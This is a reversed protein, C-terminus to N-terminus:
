FNVIKEIPSTSADKWVAKHYKNQGKNDRQFVKIPDISGLKIDKDSVIKKKQWM